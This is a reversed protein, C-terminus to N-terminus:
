GAKEETNETAKEGDKDEPATDDMSVPQKDSKSMPVVIPKIMMGVKVRRVGDVIVMDGAKLGEKVVVLDNVEFGLKIPQNRVTGDEAVVYLSKM